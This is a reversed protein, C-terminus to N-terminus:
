ADYSDSLLKQVAAAASSEDLAKAAQKTLRASNLSYQPNWQGGQYQLRRCVPTEFHINLRNGLEHLFRLLLGRNILIRAADQWSYRHRVAIRMSIKGVDADYKDHRIFAVAEWTRPHDKVYRELATRFEVLKKGELISLNSYFDVEVIANPSRNCNVIRSSAIAANNITSVENTRAYRLTTCWLNIDEVFWSHAVGPNELSNSGTIFIRDGLDYPRRAAILLVGQVYKSVSPGLAFSISVLLSTISVLMPWPNFRMVSMLLMALVFFFIGNFTNELAKDIVSSNRVSAIFYRLRRYVTDCSQVFALLPLEGNADPRFLRRFAKRKMEYEESEEGDKDEEEAIALALVDFSLQAATPDLKMLHHYLSNASQICADRTDAPGFAEGFPHEEDMCALARRFRLVDEITMSVKDSKIEPEEWRDLFSKIHFTGSMTRSLDRRPAAASGSGRFFGPSFYSNDDDSSGAKPLSAAQHIDADEEQSEGSVCREGATKTDSFHVNNYVMASLGKSSSNSKFDVLRQKPTSNNMGATSSTSNNTQSHVSTNTNTNNNNTTSAPTTATATDTAQTETEQQAVLEAEEGLTAVESLLVIDGLLKELRPKFEVLQRRGFYVAVAARKTTTALGAVVMAILVRLYTPSAIIDTGTQTRYIQWGTWYLWHLQFDNNGHLLIMSWIGWSALLFPWGKAQLATLTVLPGLWQVSMRTGLVFGDLFIWQSLRSFELLLVHRAVFNLWWSLRGDPVFDFTPNGCHYFLIWATVLCPLAVYTMYSHVVNHWVLRRWFFVNCLYDRCFRRIYRVLKNQQKRRVRNQRVGAALTGYASAGGFLGGAAAAAGATTTTNPAPGTKAAAHHHHNSNTTTAMLPHGPESMTTNNNNNNNNNTTTSSSFLLPVQEDDYATTGGGGGGTDEGGGGGNNHNVVFSVESFITSSDGDDHDDFVDGDHPALDAAVYLRDADSPATGHMAEDVIVGGGGGDDDDEYDDVTSGHRSHKDHANLENMYQLMEHAVSANKRHGRGHPRSPGGGGGGRPPQQSSQQHQQQQHSLNKEKALTIAQVAATSLSPTTTNTTAAVAMTPTTDGVTTHHRRHPHHHHHNMIPSAAPSSQTLHQQQQLQHRVQLVRRALSQFKKKPPMLISAPTAAVAAATAAITSPASARRATTTTTGDATTTVADERHDNNNNNNDNNNYSSFDIRHPPAPAPSFLSPQLPWSAMKYQQRELRSFNDTAAQEGHDLDDCAQITAADDEHATTTTITNREMTTAAAATPVDSQTRRLLVKSLSSSSSSPSSSSVAQPPPPPPPCPPLVPPPPPPPPPPSSSSYSSSM